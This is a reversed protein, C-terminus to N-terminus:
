IFFLISAALPIKLAFSIPLALICITIVAKRSNSSSNNNALLQIDQALNQKIESSQALNEEIERLKQDDEDCIDKLAGYILELDASKEQIECIQRRRLDREDQDTFPIFNDSLIDM